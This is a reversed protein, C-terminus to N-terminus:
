ELEKYFWKNLKQQIRPFLSLFSSINRNTYPLNLSSLSVPLWFILLRSLNLYYYGNCFIFFYFLIIFCLILPSPELEWYFTLFLWKLNDDSHWIFLQPLSDLSGPFCCTCLGQPLFLLSPSNFLSLPPLFQSLTPIALVLHALDLIDCSSTPSSPWFLNTSPRRSWTFLKYKARYVTLSTLCSIVRDTKEKLLM